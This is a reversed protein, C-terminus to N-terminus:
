SSETISTNIPHFACPNLTYIRAIQIVIALWVNSASVGVSFDKCKNFCFVPRYM